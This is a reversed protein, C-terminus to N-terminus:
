CVQVSIYWNTEMRFSVTGRGKSPFLSPSPSLSQIKLGLFEVKVLISESPQRALYLPVCFLTRGIGTMGAAPM